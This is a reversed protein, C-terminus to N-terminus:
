TKFKNKTYFKAAKDLEAKKYNTAGINKFVDRISTDIKYKTTFEKSAKTAEALAGAKGFRDFSFFENGANITAGKTVRVLQCLSISFNRFFFPLFPFTM